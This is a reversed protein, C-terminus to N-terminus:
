RSPFPENAVVIRDVQVESERAHVTVKHLGKTLSFRGNVAERPRAVVWNWQRHSVNWFDWQMRPEDDISLDVSDQQALKEPPGAARVRAMVFYEGDHPVEITLTTQGPQARDGTTVYGGGLAQPDSVKQFGGLNEQAEPDLVAEHRRDAQVEVALLATRLWGADTRFTVSSHYVGPRLAGPDVSVRVEQPSEGGTASSPECRLWPEGPIARWTKGAPASLRVRLPVTQVKGGSVVRVVQRAPLVTWGNLRWPMLGDKAGKEFLGMSVAGTKDARNLNALPTGGIAGPSDDTLRLDRAAADVFKPYDWVANAERDPAPQTTGIFGEPSLLDFDFDGGAVHRHRVRGNSELPGAYINNRSVIPTPGRGYHGSTLGYNLAYVTNHLLFSVGPNPFRDGGMKFGSNTAMREDGTVVLNRFVYSPGSRNPACSVGCFGGEVWNGWYRVNIQGGDLETGDDNALYLLNGHIDTDRHPGGTVHPNYESTIADNWRYTEAGVIDNYRVVHNGGTSSLVIGAPGHPHGFAWTNATGRPHHIYNHELVVARCVAGQVRIGSQGDIRKGQADVFMGRTRNEDAWQWTGAEGWGSIDCGTVRVDHSDLIKVADERGGRVHIGRVQVFAAGEMQVANAASDGVDITTGEEAAEYVIWGDATGQERIVLPERVVGAPLRVTRAVPLSEAWTRATAVAESLTKGDRTLRMRVEYREGPALLLISGRFQRDPACPVPDLAAQWAKQGIARYALEARVGDLKGTVDACVGMSEFTPTLKLAKVAPSGSSDGAETAGAPLARVAFQAFGGLVPLNQGWAASTAAWLAVLGAAGALAMRRKSSAGTTAVPLRKLGCAM